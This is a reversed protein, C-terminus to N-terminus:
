AAAEKPARLRETVFSRCGAVDFALAAAGYVAGGCAIKVLLAALAAPPAPILILAAAMVGTAAAAGTWAKVPVPLVFASRGHIACVALAAAYAIVTALAAGTLGFRPTLVLNLVLNLVAAAAMIAAMARPRRGLVYAEHFYFTMVGNMLGSLAIFPIVAAAQSALEAGILLRAADGSVLALGAAAPFGVLGMLGAARRAVDQAAARGHHELAAILLPGTTTGLWLFIISLSRDAVAYGAAYAGTAAEGLFAAIVFRDGVSLLHEFILSVAVPAGYAFFAAARQGDARDRKSKSLLVPADIV